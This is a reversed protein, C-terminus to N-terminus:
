KPSKNSYIKLVQTFLNLEEQKPKSLSKGPTHQLLTSPQLLIVEKYHQGFQPVDPNLSPREFEPIQLTREHVYQSQKLLLM